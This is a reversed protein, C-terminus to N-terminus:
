PTERLLSLFIRAKETDTRRLIRTWFTKVRHDGILGIGLSRPPLWTTYYEGHEFQGDGAAAFQPDLM